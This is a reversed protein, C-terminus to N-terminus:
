GDDQSAQDHPLGAIEQDDAARCGATVAVVAHVQQRQEIGFAPGEQELVQNRPRAIVFSEIEPAGTGDDQQDRRQRDDGAEAAQHAIGHAGIREQDGAHDRQCQEGQRVRDSDAGVIQM